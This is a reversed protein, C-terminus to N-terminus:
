HKRLEPIPAQMYAKSRRSHSSSVGQVKSQLILDCYFGVSSNEALELFESLSYPQESCRAYCPLEQQQMHERKGTVKKWVKPLNIM